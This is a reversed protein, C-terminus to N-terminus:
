PSIIRDAFGPYVRCFDKVNLTVINDVKTKVATYLILAGYIVSGTIERESLDQVVASYDAENLSVVQCLELVNQKILRSAIQPSIRPHVPLNTLVAYLECNPSRTPPLLAQLPKRNLASYGPCRVNM